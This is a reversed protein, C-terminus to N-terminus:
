PIYRTLKTKVALDDMIVDFDEFQPDIKEHRPDVEKHSSFTKISIHDNRLKYMLDSLASMQVGTFKQSDGGVLSIGITRSNNEYAHNVADTDDYYKYIVGDVDIMYHYGLGREILTDEASKLTPGATDHLILRIPPGPQDWHADPLLDFKEVIKM